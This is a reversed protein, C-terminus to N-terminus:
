RSGRGRHTAAGKEMAQKNIKINALPKGNNTRKKYNQLEEIPPPSSMQYFVLIFAIFCIIILVITYINKM